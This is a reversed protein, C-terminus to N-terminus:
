GRIHLPLTSAGLHVAVGHPLRGHKAADEGIITDRADFYASIVGQSCLLNGKQARQTSRAIM